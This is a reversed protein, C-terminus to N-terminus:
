RDFEVARLGEAVRVRPRVEDAVEDPVVFTGLVAQKEGAAIPESGYEGVPTFCGSPAADVVDPAGATDWARWERGEDDVVSLRCSEVRKAARATKPRVSLVAYVVSAREPLRASPSGPGKRVGTLKWDVDEYTLSGGSDVVEPARLGPDQEQSGLWWVSAVTVPVVILSAVAYRLQSPAGARRKPLTRLPSM